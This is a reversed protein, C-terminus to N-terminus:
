TCSSPRSHYHEYCFALGEIRREPCDRWRCREKSLGGHEAIFQNKATEPDVEVPKQGDLPIWTDYEQYYAIAEVMELATPKRGDRHLSWAELVELALYVGVFYEMGPPAPTADADDGIPVVEARGSPTWAPSREAFILSNEDFTYIRELTEGLTMRRRFPRHGFSLSGACLLCSKSCCHKLRSRQLAHDADILESKTAHPCYGAFREIETRM